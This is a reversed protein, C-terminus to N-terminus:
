YCAYLKWSPMHKYTIFPKMHNEEPDIEQMQQQGQLRKAPSPLPDKKEEHTSGKSKNITCCFGPNKFENQLRINTPVPTM